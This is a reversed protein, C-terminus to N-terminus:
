CPELIFVSWIGAHIEPDIIDDRLRLITNESCDDHRHINQIGDNGHKNYLVM